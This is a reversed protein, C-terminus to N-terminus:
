IARFVFCTELPFLHKERVEFGAETAMKEIESPTFDEGSKKNSTKLISPANLILIQNTISRLQKLLKLPSPNKSLAGSYFVIDAAPSKKLTNLDLARAEQAGTEKATLINKNTDNEESYVAIFSKGPVYRQILAKLDPRKPRIMSWNMTRFIKRVLRKTFATGLLPLASNSLQELVDRVPQRKDHREIFIRWDKKLIPLQWENNDRAYRHIYLKQNPNHYPLCDILFMFSSDIVHVEKAKEIITCYDIANNAFERGPTFTACNESILERKIIYKRPIDEHIFAYDGEPAVKKFLAQEKELDRKIFFSDWKKELPVGAIQYFQWELPIGDTRNLNQFGVIKIEDYKSGEPQSVNKSILEKAAADDSQIIMLNPLDRYMFSVTPYNHPYCFIAVKEYKKCYERVIGHCMFHDGLGLHHYLLISSM